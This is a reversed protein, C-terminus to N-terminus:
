KVSTNPIIPQPTPTPIAETDPKSPTVEPEDQKDNKPEIHNNIIM